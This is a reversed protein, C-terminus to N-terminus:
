ALLTGKVHVAETPQLLFCDRLSQVTGDQERQIHTDVWEHIDFNRNGGHEQQMEEQPIVLYIDDMSTVFHTRLRLKALMIQGAHVPFDHQVYGQLVL